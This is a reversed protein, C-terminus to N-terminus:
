IVTLSIFYIILMHIPYYMYFAYKLSPGKQHNHLVIPIMALLAYMEISNSMYYTALFLAFLTLLPMDKFIYFIVIVLVGYGAYDTQVTDAFSTSSIIVVACLIIFIPKPIDGKKSRERFYDIAAITILGLALTFYVNLNQQFDFPAKRTMLSFPIQSILAFILLRIIYNMVNKTYILGEVILYCFIPFAVRGITRLVTYTNFSMFGSLYHVGNDYVLGLCAGLHDITMCLIAIIKLWFTNIFGMNHIRKRNFSISTSIDQLTQKTGSMEQNQNENNTM